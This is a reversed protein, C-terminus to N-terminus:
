ARALRLWAIGRGEPQICWLVLLLSADPLPLVAPEGFAFDQWQAHAGSTRSQTPAAAAWVLQDAEVGFGSATPRCMALRVGPDGHKRQNYVFLARGDPLAALGTSQGLTGTSGTPQWTRGADVSLAYANPYEAKGQLDLHWCTGLLRGDALEVVWAEAAGSGTEPFRLMPAWTWTRGRNTSRLSVVQRCDVEVAPDFTRYPSYCCVWDGQGTACLPGPAEAAGPIPMPILLPDLWTRGNDTSAAWVLENQKLAQTADLWFSEGPADIPTRTGFFLLEGQPSRSVSGFISFREQLHPWIPGKETWTRGQDASRSLFPKFDNRGLAEQVMYTCVIEGRDALACRPGAAVATPGGDPRRSVFGQDLVQFHV